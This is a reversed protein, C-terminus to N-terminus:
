ANQEVPNNHEETESKEDAFDSPEMAELLLDEYVFKRARYIKYAVVNLLLFVVKSSHFAFVLIHNSAGVWKHMMALLFITGALYTLGFLVVLAILSRIIFRECGGKEDFSKEIYATSQCLLVIALAVYITLAWVDMILNVTYNSFMLDQMEILLSSVEILARPASSSRQLDFLSITAWLNISFYVLSFLVLLLTLAKWRKTSGKLQTLPNAYRSSILKDVNTPLFTKVDIFEKESSQVPDQNTMPFEPVPKEIDINVSASSKTTRHNGHTM